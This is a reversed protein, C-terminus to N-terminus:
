RMGQIIGEIGRILQVAAKYEAYTPDVMRSRPIQLKVLPIIEQLDIKEANRNKLYHEVPSLRTYKKVTGVVVVRADAVRSGDIKLLASITFHPLDNETRVERYHFSRWGSLKFKVAKILSKKRLQNNGLYEDITVVSHIEGDLEVTSDLAILPGLLDSWPPSFALSGGITIRNRLPTNAARILSKVLINEPMKAKLASTVDAYSNMSGIEVSEQNIDIYQLPLRSLDVLNELGRLKGMLLGTGGAHLRTKEQQVLDAAEPISEPFYWQLTQM